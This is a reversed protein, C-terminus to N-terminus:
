VHLINDGQVHKFHPHHMWVSILIIRNSIEFLWDSCWKPDYTRLDLDFIEGGLVIAHYPSNVYFLLEQQCIYYRLDLESFFLPSSSFSPSISSPYRQIFFYTEGM